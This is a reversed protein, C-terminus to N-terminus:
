RDVDSDLNSIVVIFIPSHFILSYSLKVVNDPSCLPGHVGQKPSQWMTSRLEGEACHVKGEIDHKCNCLRSYGAAPLTIQLVNQLRTRITKKIYTLAKWACWWSWPNNHLDTRASPGSYLKLILLVRDCKNRWIIKHLGVKQTTTWKVHIWTHTFSYFITNCHVNGTSWPRPRPRSTFKNVFHVAWWNFGGHEWIVM